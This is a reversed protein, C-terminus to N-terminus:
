ARATYSNECPEGYFFVHWAKSTFDEWRAKQTKLEDWEDSRELMYRAMDHIDEKTVKRPALLQKRKRKRPPAEADTLANGDDGSEQMDEGEDEEEDEDAEKDSGSAVVAFRSAKASAPM